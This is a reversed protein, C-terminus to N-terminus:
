AKLLPSVQRRSLAIVMGLGLLLTVISSGIWFAKELPAMIQCVLGETWPDIVLRKFWRGCFTLIQYVHRAVKLVHWYHALQDM